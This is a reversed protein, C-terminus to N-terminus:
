YIKAGVGGLFMNKRSIYKQGRGWSYQMNKTAATTQLQNVHKYLNSSLIPFEVTYAM